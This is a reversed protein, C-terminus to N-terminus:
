FHNGVSCVVRVEDQSEQFVVKCNSSRRYNERDIFRGDIKVNQHAQVVSVIDTQFGKENEKDSSENSVEAWFNEHQRQNQESTETEKRQESTPKTKWHSVHIAEQATVETLVFM